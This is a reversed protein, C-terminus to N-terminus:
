INQATVSGPTNNNRGKLADDALFNIDAPNFGSPPEACASPAPADQRKM